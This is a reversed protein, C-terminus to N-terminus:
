KKTNQVSSTLQCLRLFDSEDTQGNTQGGTRGDSLKRLISDNSKESITCSSLQGHYRTVSLALNKFFIQRGPNPSFPGFDTKAAKELKTNWNEKFIRVIIAQLMTESRTSSFDVFLIKPDLNPAIM